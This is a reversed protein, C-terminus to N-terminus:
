INISLWFYSVLLQLGVSQRRILKFTRRSTEFRIACTAGSRWINTSLSSLQKVNALNQNDCGKTMGQGM